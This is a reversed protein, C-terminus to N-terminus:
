ERASVPELGVTLRSLRRIIVAVLLVTVLAAGAIFWPLPIVFGLWAEILRPLVVVLGISGGLALLTLWRVGARVRREDEPALLYGRGMKGNPYFVTEGQESTHFLQNIFVADFLRTIIM